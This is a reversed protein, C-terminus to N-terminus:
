WQSRLGSWTLSSVTECLVPFNWCPSSEAFKGTMELTLFKVYQMHIHMVSFTDTLCKVVVEYSLTVEWYFSNGYRSIKMTILIQM